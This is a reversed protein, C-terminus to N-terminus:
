AVRVNITPSKKKVNKRNKRGEEKKMRRRM